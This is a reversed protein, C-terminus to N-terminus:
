RVTMGYNAVDCTGNVWDAIFALNASGPTGDGTVSTGMREFTVSNDGYGEAEFHGTGTAAFRATYDYATGSSNWGLTLYRTNTYNAIYACGLTADGSGEAWVTAWDSGPTSGGLVSREMYYAGTGLAAFQHGYSPQDPTYWGYNYSNYYAYNQSDRLAIAGYSGEGWVAIEGYSSQGGPGYASAGYGTPDGTRDFSVRAYGGNQIEAKIQSSTTDIGYLGSNTDTAFFSGRIGNGGTEFSAVSDDGAVVTTGVWGAGYDGDGSGWDVAVETPDAAFAVSAPVLSVLLAVILGILFTRKKV